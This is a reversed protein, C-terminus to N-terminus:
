LEKTDIVDGSGKKWSIISEYKYGEIDSYCVKMKFEVDKPHKKLSTGHIMLNKDKKIGVKDEWSTFEVEDGSLVEFSTIFCLEGRNSIDVKIGYDHGSYGGGNCWIRPKVSMRIRKEFLENQKILQSTQNSLEQIQAEKHEDKEFLKKISLFTFGVTIIVGIITTVGLFYDFGDKGPTEVKYTRDLVELVTNGTVDIGISLTDSADSIEVTDAVIGKKTNKLIIIKEM